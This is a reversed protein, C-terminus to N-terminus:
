FTQGLLQDGLLPEYYVTRAFNTFLPSVLVRSPMVGGNLITFTLINTGGSPVRSIIESVQFTANYDTDGTWNRVIVPDGPTLYPIDKPLVITAVDNLLTISTAQIYQPNGKIGVPTFSTGSGAAPSAITYGAAASTPIATTDIQIRQKDFLVETEADCPHDYVVFVMDLMLGGAGWQHMYICDTKPATRGYGVRWPTISNRETVSKGQVTNGAILSGIGSLTTGIGAKLLLNGVGGLGGAWIDLALGGGIEAAGEILQLIGSM